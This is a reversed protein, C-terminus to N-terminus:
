RLKATQQARLSATRRQISHSANLRRSIRRSRTDCSDSACTTYTSSEKREEASSRRTARRMFSRPVVTATATSVQLICMQQKLQLIHVLMYHGTHWAVNNDRLVDSLITACYCMRLHHHNPPVMACYCVLCHHSSLLVNNYVEAANNSLLVNNNVQTTSNSPLPNNNVESTSNGLLM